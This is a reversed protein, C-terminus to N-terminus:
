GAFPLGEFVDRAALACGIEPLDLVADLADVFRVTWDRRQRVYFTLQPRETDVLLIYVLSPITKYEEVKRIRDTGMTSRSLVEVALRPDVASTGKPDVQGCEVLLDPRRINGAPIQLAIDDTTPKCPGGRLQGHLSALINVVVRDHSHSAGTMSKLPLFPLGDVLEYNRDQSKQWELFEDATMRKLEPEGM